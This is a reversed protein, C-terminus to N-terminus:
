VQISSHLLLVYKNCFNRERDNDPIFDGQYKLNQEVYYAEAKLLYASSLVKSGLVFLSAVSLLCVLATLFVNVNYAGKGESSTNLDVAWLKIVFKDTNNARLINRLITELSILFILTFIILVTYTSFISALFIFAITFDIFILIVALSNNKYSKFEEYDRRILKYVLFGFFMWVLLWLLGGNAFQTFLENGGSYFNMNNISLLSQNLPLFKNFAVSYTDVGMGVLGRWLSDVFVSASVVWSVDTGLTLQTVLDLNPPIILARAQPIQLLASPVIVGLLVSGVMPLIKKRQKDSVKLKNMLIYLFVGMLIVFLVVLNFGQNISFFAINIVSLVILIAGLTYINNKKKKDSYFNSLLLGILLSINVFNFLIHIKASRLVPLGAQHLYQYMPVFGWINLGFFSLISLLNNIGM